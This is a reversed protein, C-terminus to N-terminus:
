FWGARRFFYVMLIGPVLMMIGVVLLSSYAGAFTFPGPTLAGPLPINMGYISAVLAAPITVTFIITLFVLVRNTKNSTTTYDTDQYVELLEKMEDVTKSALRIKHGLDSFYRSLDEQSFKQATSLDPLYLTLPFLIRGLVVNKRRASNIPRALSKKEDFVVAEIDDLDDQEKDLISFVLDVQSNIIQYAVYASSKMLSAREKQNDRCSQFLRTMSNVSSPHLTVLYDKGLFMSVRNSVVLGQADVEPFHLMIFAHEGHDEVKTVKGTLCDQLDLQDFGYDRGLISTQESTPDVIDIWKM